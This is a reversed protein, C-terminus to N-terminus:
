SVAPPRYGLFIGAGVITTLGAYIIAGLPGFGDVLVGGLAAGLTISVMFGLVMLAGVAEANDPVTKFGWTQFGVPLFGFAFGWLAVAIISVTAASGFLTLVLASGAILLAGIALDARISRALIWGAVITGLFGAGGFALLTLSIAEVGFQPVQELFVRIYTFGAFHGSIIFLLAVIGVAFPPRTLLALNEGVGSAKAAPLKPLTLMQIALAVLGLATSVYFAARWGWLDGIYAGVPAALVTAASVGAFVISLARPVNATPVLRLALAGAMTWFGGLGVGLLVRAALLTWYNTATASIFSSIILLVTLGCMVVRRDLSRIFVGLTLATIGGVIATATVAQGAGGVSVNLDAAMPTLLSVPLFEATVMAFSGLGLSTVAFWAPGAPATRSSDDAVDFEDATQSLDSM